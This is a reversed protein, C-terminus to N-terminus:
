IQIFDIYFSLLHVLNTTSLAFHNALKSHCMLKAGHYEAYHCETYHCETFHCETSHYKAHHWKDYCCGHYHSSAYRCESIHSQTFCCKAYCCEAYIWLMTISLTLHIEGINHTMKTFTTTGNIKMQFYTKCQLAM